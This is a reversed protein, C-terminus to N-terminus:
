ARIHHTGDPGVYVKQGSPTQWIYQGIDPQELKWGAHTKLRHAKRSLPALNSERTQKPEGPQTPDHHYPVTHDLDLGRSETSSYPFVDYAERLLVRERIRDPIEYADVGADMGGIHIVPTVRIKSGATIAAIQDQLVPGITEVRALGDLNDLNDAHIHVYFQTTAPLVCAKRSLAVPVASGALAPGSSNAAVLEIVAEPDALMALAKARRQDLTSTDGLAALSEAVVKITTELGVVGVRDLRASVWGSLPDYDDGGLRVYRQSAKAKLRGGDPDAKLVAARLLRALRKSGIVGLAPAVLDDVVCWSDEPVGCCAAVVKCAQWLPVEASTVKAWCKPLLNVLDTVNDVLMVMNFGSSHHALALESTFDEGFFEDRLQQVGFRDGGGPKGVGEPLRYAEIVEALMVARKAELLDIERCLGVYGAMVEAARARWVSVTDIM